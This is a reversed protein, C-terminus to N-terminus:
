DNHSSAWMQASASLYHRVFHGRLEQDPAEWGGYPEGPTKLGSMKRFSWVLRDVDLMLLYELNTQQANGYISNKDIRVDHLSVEKLFGRGAGKNKIKQYMMKWSYADDEKLMKKPVLNMWASEDTPTVHYHSFMENKLTENNSSLLHHRFTHSSLKTPTNTCEKLCFSVSVLAFLLVLVIFKLFCVSYNMVM